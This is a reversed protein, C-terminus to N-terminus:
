CSACGTEYFTQRHKLKQLLSHCFDTSQLLKAAHCHGRSQSVKDVFVRLDAYSMQIYIHWHNYYRRYTCSKSGPMVSEFRYHSLVSEEAEARAEHCETCVLKMLELATIAIDSIEEDSQNGGVDHEQALGSGNLSIPHQNHISLAPYIFAGKKLLVDQIGEVPRM